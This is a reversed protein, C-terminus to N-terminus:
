INSDLFATLQLKSRGGAIPKGVMDGNKFLMLTPIARIQYNAAVRTNNDVNLRAVRLTAGYERAVEELVPAFMRFPGSWDAWCALLVPVKSQLVELEFTEDTVSTILTSMLSSGTDGRSM